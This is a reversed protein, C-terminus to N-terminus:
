KWTGDSNLRNLLKEATADTTGAATAKAKDDTATKHAAELLEQSIKSRANVDDAADAFSKLPVAGPHEAHLQAQAPGSMDVLDSKSLEGAIKAQGPQTRARNLPMGDFAKYNANVGEDWDEDGMKGQLAKITDIDGSQAAQAMLAFQSSKNSGVSSVIKEAYAKSATAYDAANKADIAADGTKALKAPKGARMNAYQVAVGASRESRLKAQKANLRNQAGKSNILSGAGAGAMMGGFRTNGFKSEAIKNQGAEKTAKAGQGAKGQAYKGGASLKGTAFGAAGSVLSNMASTTWKLTKPVMLLAIIPMLAGILGYVEKDKSTGTGISAFVNALVLSISLMGMIMLFMANVRIFNKWWQSFFKETGPLVWAVYALPALIIMIYIVFYRIVLYIMATLAAVLALIAFVFLLVYGLITAGTNAITSMTSGVGSATQYYVDSGVASPGPALAFILNPIALGLLNFFDVVVSCIVLSFQTLIVAAIFKPLTKKITYNDLGIPLSSSFILILFILIYIINAINVVNQVVKVIAQDPDGVVISPVKLFNILLGHRDTSQDTGGILGAIADNVGDLAPCLIFGLPAKDSCTKKTDEIAALEIAKKQFAATDIGPGALTETGGLGDCSGTYLISCKGDAAAIGSNVVKDVRINTPSDKKPIQQDALCKDRDNNRYEQWLAGNAASTTFYLDKCENNDDFVVYGANKSRLANFYFDHCTYADGTYTQCLTRDERGSSTLNGDWTCVIHASDVWHCEVGGPPTTDVQDAKAKGSAGFFLAVAMLIFLLLKYNLSIKKM